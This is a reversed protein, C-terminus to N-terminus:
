LYDYYSKKHKKEKLNEALVTGILLIISCVLCIGMFLTLTNM